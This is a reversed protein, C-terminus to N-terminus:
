SSSVCVCIEKEMRTNRDRENVSKTVFELPFKLAQPRCQDTIGLYLWVEEDQVTSGKTSSIVLLKRKYQPTQESSSFTFINLM